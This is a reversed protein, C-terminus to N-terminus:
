YNFNKLQEQFHDQFEEKKALAENHLEILKKETLRVKGHNISVSKFNFSTQRLGEKIQKYVTFNTITDGSYRKMTLVEILFSNGLQIETTATRGHFTNEIKM